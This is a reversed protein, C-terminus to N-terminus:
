KKEGGTQSPGSAPVDSTKTSTDTSTSLATDTKSKNKAEQRKKRLEEYMTRQEDTLVAKTKEYAEDRAKKSEAAIADAKSRYTKMIEDFREKQDATVLAALAEDREHQAAERRERQTQYNTNKMTETWITKIKERQEASLHLEKLWGDQEYNHSRQWMITAAIGAAFAALFGIVFIGTPKIV